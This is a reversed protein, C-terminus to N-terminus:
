ILDDGKYNPHNKDMYDFGKIWWWVIPALILVIIFFLILIGM